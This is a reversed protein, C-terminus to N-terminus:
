ELSELLLEACPVPDLPEPDIPLPLAVPEEPEIPEDLESV